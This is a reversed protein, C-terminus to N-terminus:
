KKPSASGLTLPKLRTRFPIETSPSTTTPFSQAGAPSSASRSACNAMDAPSRGVATGTTGAQREGVLTPHFFAGCSGGERWRHKCMTGLSASRRKQLRSALLRKSRGRSVFRFVCVLGREGLRRDQLCLSLEARSWLWLGAADWDGAMLM